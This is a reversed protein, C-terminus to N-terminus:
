SGGGPPSTPCHCLFVLVQELAARYGALGEEIGVVEAQQARFQVLHGEMVTNTSSATKGTVM